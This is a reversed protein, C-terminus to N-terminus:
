DTASKRGRIKELKEALDLLFAHRLRETEEATYVCRFDGVIAPPVDFVKCIEARTM